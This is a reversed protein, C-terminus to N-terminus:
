WNVTQPFRHMWEFWPAGYRRDAVSQGVTIGNLVYLDKTTHLSKAHGDSFTSNYYYTNHRPKIFVYNISESNGKLPDTASLNPESWQLIQSPRKIQTRRQGGQDVVVTGAIVRRILPHNLGYGYHTYIGLEMNPCLMPGMSKTGDNLTFRDITRGITYNTLYRHYVKYNINTGPISSLFLSPYYEDSDDIYHEIIMAMQKLNSLCATSKARERAQNLAPLLMGALIAIIAIVVLLEVLTFHSFTQKNFMSYNQKTRPLKM